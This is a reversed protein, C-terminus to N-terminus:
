FPILEVRLTNGQADHTVKIVEFVVNRDYLNNGALYWEATRAVKKRKSGTVSEASDPYVGKNLRSRVEFIYIDNDKEAIIDIEGVNHVTYNRVLIKFGQQQLAEVASEEGSNGIHQRFTKSTNTM